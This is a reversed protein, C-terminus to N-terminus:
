GRVTTQTPRHDQDRMISTAVRDFTEVVSRSVVDTIDMLYMQFSAYVKSRDYAYPELLMNWDIRMFECFLEAIPAAVAQLTLEPLRGPLKNYAKFIAGLTDTVVYIRKSQERMTRIWLDYQETESKFQTTELYRVQKETYKKLTDFCDLHHGDLSRPPIQTLLENFKKKWTQLKKIFPKLETPIKDPMANCWANAVTLVAKIESLYYVRFIDRVFIVHNFLCVTETHERAFRPDYKFPVFSM